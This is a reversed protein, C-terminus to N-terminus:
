FPCGVLRATLTEALRKYRKPVSKSKDLALEMQGQGFLLRSHHAVIKLPEVVVRRGTLQFVKKAALRYVLRTFLSAERPEVTPIRPM